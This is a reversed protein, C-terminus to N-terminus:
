FLEAKSFLWMSGSYAGAGTTTGYNISVSVSSNGTATYGTAPIAGGAQFGYVTVTPTGAMPPNLFASAYVGLGASGSYGGVQIWQQQWYRQCMLMEATYSRREFPTAVGGRELQIDKIRMTQGAAARVLNLTQSAHRVFGGAVWTGLSPANFSSGSGLDFGLFIQGSGAWTGGTDGPVWFSVRQEGTTVNVLQVFSRNGDKNRLSVGLTGTISSVINCSFTLSQAQATGWLLDACFITGEIPQIFTWADSAGPSPVSTQVNISMAALGSGPLPNNAPTLTTTFFGLQGTAAAGSCAYNWHDTVWDGTLSSGGTAYRQNIWQQGNVVMNRYGSLSGGNLSTLTAAAPTTAGIVTNDIANPTGSTTTNLPGTLTGGSLPLYVGTQSTGTAAWKTGDWTWVLGGSTFTAGVGPSNPFDLAM